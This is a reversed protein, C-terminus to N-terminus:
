AGLAEPTWLGVRPRKSPSVFGKLAVADVASLVGATLKQARSTSIRSDLSAAGASRVNKGIGRYVRRSAAIAWASRVPLRAIGASASRYYDDSLALLREVVRITSGRTETATLQEPRIGEKALWELPLYIRGRQADSVVDRAINTLQFGIGLDSARELTPRDRAGLIIASMVGVVGAVHYCYRLTDEINEFKSGNVDMAMGDLLELPYRAPLGHRSVVTQLGLFEDETAKGDLAALTKERLIRYREAPSPAHPAAAHRFGLVENDIEDDCHRCWSYLLYMSARKDRPLLRAACAFSQSGQAIRQQARQVLDNM